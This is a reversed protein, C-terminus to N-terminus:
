DEDFLKNLRTLYFRDHVYAIGQLFDGLCMAAEFSPVLLSMCYCSHLMIASGLL